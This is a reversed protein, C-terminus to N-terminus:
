RPQAHSARSRGASWTCSPATRTRGGHLTYARHWTCRRANLDAASPQDGLPGRKWLKDGSRRRNTHGRRSPTGECMWCSTIQRHPKLVLNWPLQHRPAVCLAVDQCRSTLDVPDQGRYMKPRHDSRSATRAKEAPMECMVNQEVYKATGDRRLAEGVITDTAPASVNCRPLRDPLVMNLVLASITKECVFNQCPARTYDPTLPQGVGSRIWILM